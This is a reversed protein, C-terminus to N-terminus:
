NEGPIFDAPKQMIQKTNWEPLLFPYDNQSSVAPYKKDERQEFIYLFITGDASLTVTYIPDTFDEKSAGEIYDDCRLSSLRNILRVAVKEDAPRGDAATWPPAPTEQTGTSDESLALALEDTKNLVLTDAGSTVTFGAVSDKSFSLVTRDRLKGVDTEFVKRINERAQYVGPDDELSVFTHRYTSAAKGVDFRLAKEGESFAEVRIKTEDTLDYPSYNGSESVLSMLTFGAIADLMKDVSNGDAQYGQPQLLWRDDDRQLTIVTGGHSIVIRNVTAKELQEPEPLEYHTKDTNRLVLYVSFAVIIVALIVVEKKVRM